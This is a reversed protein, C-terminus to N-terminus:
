GTQEHEINCLDRISCGDGDYADVGNNSLKTYLPPYQCATKGHDIGVQRGLRILQSRPVEDRGM